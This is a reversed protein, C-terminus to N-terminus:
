HKQELIHESMCRKMRLGGVFTIRGVISYIRMKPSSGIGSLNLSGIHQNFLQAAESVDDRERTLPKPMLKPFYGSLWLDNTGYLYKSNSVLLANGAAKWGSIQAVANIDKYVQLSRITVWFNGKGGGEM